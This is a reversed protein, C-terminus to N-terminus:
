ALLLLPLGKWVNWGDGGYCIMMLLVIDTPGSSQPIETDKRKPRKTKQKKQPKSTSPQIITYTHHADTPNASGEGMEEQAQVVMTPFLPTERRSFGKEVRRM